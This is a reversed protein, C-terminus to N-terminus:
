TQVYKLTVNFSKQMTRTSVRKSEQKKNITPIIIVDLGLVGSVCVGGPDGIGNVGGACGGCDCGMRLRGDM